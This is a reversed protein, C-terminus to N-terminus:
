SQPKPEDTKPADTGAPKEDDSEPALPSPLSKDLVVLYVSRTHQRQASHLDPATTNGADTSATFYLYKGDKDFVGHQADSMGDTLKTSKGDAVSYLHIANLVNSGLKTYVIWKSDPSWSAALSRGGHVY